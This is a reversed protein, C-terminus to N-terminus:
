GAVGESVQLGDAMPMLLSAPLFEAAVVGFFGLSMTFVAGWAPPNDDYTISPM